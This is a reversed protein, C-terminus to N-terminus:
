LQHRYSEGKMVIFGRRGAMERLRDCSAEGIHEELGALDLNTTLIIPKAATYRDDIVRFYISQLFSFDRPRVKGVDDIILLSHRALGQLISEDSVKSGDKYTERIQSLLHNETAFYVPCTNLMISVGDSHLRCPEMDQVLRNALACALHTKGVGYVQPSLLVHSKGNWTAMAKYAKPQKDAEFDAFGKAQFIGQVGYDRLWRERWSRAVEDLEQQLAEADEVAEAAARCVDCQSLHVLRGDTMTYVAVTFEAGCTECEIQETSKSTQSLGLPRLDRSDTM